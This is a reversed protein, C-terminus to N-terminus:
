CTVPHLLQELSNFPLEVWEVGRNGIRGQNISAVGMLVSRSRKEFCSDIGPLPASSCEPPLATDIQIRHDDTLPLAQNNCTM